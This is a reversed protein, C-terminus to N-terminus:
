SGATSDGIVESTIVERGGAISATRVPLGPLSRAFWLIQAGDADGGVRYVLCDLRGVPTVLTEASVITEAAPFAAHGVLDHWTSVALTPEGIAEMERTMQQSEITATTEDCEVFTTRWWTDEGDPVPVRTVVVRGPPCGRRIQDADFPAPALDNM